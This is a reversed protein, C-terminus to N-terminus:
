HERKILMLPQTSRKAPTAVMGNGIFHAFRAYSSQVSDLDSVLFALDTLRCKLYPIASNSGGIPFCFRYGAKVKVTM